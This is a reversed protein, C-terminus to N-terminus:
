KFFRSFFSKKPKEVPQEEPQNLQVTPQEIENKPQEVPKRLTSQMNGLLIQYNEQLANQKEVIDAMKASQSIIHEQAQQLQSLLSQITERQQEKEQQAKELQKQLIRLTDPQEVTENSQVVLQEIENKPQEVPQFLAIAEKKIVKRGDLEQVYPVLDKNIRKYVAQKSIGVADAFEAVSFFKSM